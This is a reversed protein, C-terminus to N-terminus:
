DKVLFEKNFNFFKIFFQKKTELRYFYTNIKYLGNILETTYNRMQRLESKFLLASRTIEKSGMMMIQQIQSNTIYGFKVQGDKVWPTDSIVSVSWGNGQDKFIGLFLKKLENSIPIGPLFLEEM